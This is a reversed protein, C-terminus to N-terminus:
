EGAWFQLFHYQSARSAHPHTFPPSSCAKCTKDMESWICIGMTTSTCQERPLMPCMRVSEAELAMDTGDILDVDDVDAAFHSGSLAM